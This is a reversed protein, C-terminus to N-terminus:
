AEIKIDACNVFHEQPGLGMGCNGKDCGWNNGGKYWWQLVCRKCKLGSPLHAKIKYLYKGPETVTFQTGGSQLKLLTGKLKGISDGSVQTNTFDGVRFEFYGKHSMTLLVEIDIIQGSKYVKSITGTAYSGGDMHPQDKVHWPDGCVGCRGGNDINMVTAGGCFLENDNYNVPTQFGFRWMSNRAPPNQLYGHGLCLQAISLLFFVSYLKM